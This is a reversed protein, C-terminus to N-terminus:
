LGEPMYRMDLVEIGLLRGEADFDFVYQGVPQSHAVGPEKIDALRIYGVSWGPSATIEAAISIKDVFDSM